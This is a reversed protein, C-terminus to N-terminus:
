DYLGRIFYESYLVKQQNEESISNFWAEKTYYRGELIWMPADEKEIAPGDERHRIGNKYWEKVGNAREVAPGGERHRSGNFFWEKTGDTYVKAPGDERHLNGDVWWEFREGSYDIAPGNM